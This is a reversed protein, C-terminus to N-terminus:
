TFLGFNGQGAKNQQDYSKHDYGKGILVLDM